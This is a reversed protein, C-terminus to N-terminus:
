RCASETLPYAPFSSVFENRSERSAGAGVAVWYTTRTKDRPKFEVPYGKARLSKVRREANERRRYAGVSVGNVLDGSNIRMIDTFGDERMRRMEEDV